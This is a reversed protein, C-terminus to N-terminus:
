RIAPAIQVRRIAAFSPQWEGQVFEREKLVGNNSVDVSLHRSIIQEQTFRSHRM